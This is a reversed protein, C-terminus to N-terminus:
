SVLSASIRASRIMEDMTKPVQACPAIDGGTSDLNPKQAEPVLDSERAIVNEFQSPSDSNEHQEESIKEAPQNSKESKKIESETTSYTENSGSEINGMNGQQKQDSIAPETEFGTKSSEMETDKTEEEDDIDFIDFINRHGPPTKDPATENRLYENSAKTKETDDVKENKKQHDLVVSSDINTTVNAESSKISTTNESKIIARNEQNETGCSESMVQSFLESDSLSSVLDDVPTEDDVEDSNQRVFQFKNESFPDTNLAIKGVHRKRAFPNLSNKGFKKSDIKLDVDIISNSVDSPTWSLMSAMHKGSLVSSSPGAVGSSTQSVIDSDSLSAGYWDGENLNCEEDSSEYREGGFNIVLPPHKPAQCDYNVRKANVKSFPNKKVGSRTAGINSKSTAFRSIRKQNLAPSNKMMKFQISKAIVAKAAPKAVRGSLSVSNRKIRRRNILVRQNTQHTQKEMALSFDSASNTPKSNQNILQFKHNKVQFSPSSGASLIKQFSQLKLLAGTLTVNSTVKSTCAAIGDKKQQTVQSEVAVKSRLYSKAEDQSTKLELNTTSSFPVKTELNLKAQVIRSNDIVSTNQCPLKIRTNSSVFQSAALKNIFPSTIKGSQKPNSLKQTKEANIKEAGDNNEKGSVASEIGKAIETKANEKETEVTGMSLVQVEKENDKSESLQATTKSELVKTPLDDSDSVTKLSGVSRSVDSFKTSIEKLTNSAEKRLEELELDEKDKEVMSKMAERRLELLEIEEDDSSSETSGSNPNRQGPNVTEEPEEYFSETDDFDDEDNSIPILSESTPSNEIEVVKIDDEIPVILPPSVSKEPEQPVLIRSRRTNSSSTSSSPQHRKARRKQAMSAVAEQWLRLNENEISSEDNKSGSMSSNSSEIVYLAPQLSQGGPRLVDPPEEVSIQNGINSTSERTVSSQLHSSLPAITITPRKISPMLSSEKGTSRSSTQPARNADAHGWQYRMDVDRPINPAPKLPSGISRYDIDGSNILGPPRM